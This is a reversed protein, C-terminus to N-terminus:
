DIHLIYKGEPLRRGAPLFGSEMDPIYEYVGQESDMTEFCGRYTTGDEGTLILDAPDIDMGVNDLTITLTISGEAAWIAYMTTGSLSRDENFHCLENKGIHQGQRYVSGLTNSSWGHLRFKERKWNADDEDILDFEENYAVTGSETECEGSPDIYTIRYTLPRWIAYLTVIEDPKDALNIVRQCNKIVEGSGDPKTNWSEFIYGIRSYENESLSQGVGWIMDQVAMTGEAKDAEPYADDNSDFVIHYISGDRTWIASYKKGVLSGDEKSNYSEILKTEATPRNFELLETYGNIATASGDERTAEGSVRLKIPMPPYFPYHEKDEDYQLQGYFDKADISEFLAEEFSLKGSGADKPIWFYLQDIKGTMPFTVVDNLGYQYESGDKHKFLIDGGTVATQKNYPLEGGVTQIKRCYVPVKKSGDLSSYPRSKGNHLLKACVNGGNIMVDAYSWDYDKGKNAGIRGISPNSIDGETCRITGGNIEIKDVYSSDDLHESTKTYYKNGIVASDEDTKDKHANIIGGTITIRKLKGRAYPGIVPIKSAHRSRLDLKGGNIEVYGKSSDKKSAGICVGWSEIKIKPDGSIKVKADGFWGSM